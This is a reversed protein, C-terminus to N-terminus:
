PHWGNRGHSVTWVVSRGFTVKASLESRCVCHIILRCHYQPNDRRNRAVHLCKALSAQHCKRGLYPRSPQFQPLSSKSSDGTFKCITEPLSTKAPAKPFLNHLKLSDHMHSQPSIHAIPRLNPHAKVGGLQSIPHQRTRAHKIEVHNSAQM